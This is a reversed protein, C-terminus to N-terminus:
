SEQLQGRGPPLSALQATFHRDPLPSQASLVEPGRLLLLDHLSGNAQADSDGAGAM